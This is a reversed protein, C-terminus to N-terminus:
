HALRVRVLAREPRKRCYVGSPALPGTRADATTEPGKPNSRLACGSQRLGGVSDAAGARHARPLKAGRGLRGPARAHEPPSRRPEGHGQPKPECHGDGGFCGNPERLAPSAVPIGRAARHVFHGRREAEPGAIARQCKSSRQLHCGSGAPEHSAVTFLAHAFGVVPCRGPAQVLIRAAARIRWKSGAGAALPCLRRVPHHAGATPVAEKSPLSRLACLAGEDPRREVLRRERHSAHHRATRARPRRAPGSQVSDGPRMGSRIPLDSGAAASRACGGRAGAQGIAFSGGAASHLRGDGRASSDAARARRRADSFDDAPKRSAEGARPPEKGPRQPRTRRDAASVM